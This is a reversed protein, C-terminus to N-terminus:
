EPVLRYITGPDVGIYLSGDPGQDVMRVRLERDELLREEHVVGSEDLVLRNLHTKALAGSLLSGHWGPFDDGTYFLMDSPAISPVWYHLPQEMGDHHTLRDGVPEDDYEVGYSIVPWGYNKGAEIVNVEDGGKPGHEHAFLRNTGPQVALGQANRNGLSFVEPVAGPIGVFPNDEPVAGDDHLRLIKGIHSGPSQSLHRLDWRDGITVYLFGDRFALRGGYVIGGHYWPRAELLRQRDSFRGGDFRAREVVTTSLDESGAVYAYYVWGNDVFDPHLVVDHMGADKNAFVDDPGGAIPTKGGCRLDLLTLRGAIRESVIAQEASLFAMAWPQELGGAVPELRFSAAESVVVDGAQAAGAGDECPAAVTDGPLRASSPGAFWLLAVVLCIAGGPAPAEHSTPRPRNRIWLTTCMASWDVAPSARQM